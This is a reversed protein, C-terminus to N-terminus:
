TRVLFDTCEDGPNAYVSYYHDYQGAEEATLMKSGGNPAYYSRKFMKRNHEYHDGFWFYLKIGDEGDREVGTLLAIMGPEVFDDEFLVKRFKVPIPFCEGSLNAVDDFTVGNLHVFSTM